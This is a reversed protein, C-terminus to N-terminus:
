CGGCVHVAPVEYFVHGPDDTALVGVSLGAGDLGAIHPVKAPATTKGSKTLTVYYLTSGSLGGYVVLLPYSTGAGGPEAAPAAGSKVTRPLTRPASWKPFGAVPDATTVYDIPGSRGLGKFLVYLLDTSSTILRETIVPASTAAAGPIPAIKGWKVFGSEITGVVFDVVDGSAAKWTALIVDTGMPRYVAPSASTAAGPIIAPKSWTLKRTTAKGIAYKVAPGTANKWVVILEGPALAAASPRDRTIATGKDVIVPSSWTNRRLSISTQYSIGFGASGERPGTWFLLRKTTKSPLVTLLALAPATHTSAGPVPGHKAGWTVPAGMPTATAAGFTAGIAAALGAAAAVISTCVQPM